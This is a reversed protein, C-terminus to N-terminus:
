RQVRARLALLIFAFAAPGILRVVFLLAIGAATWGESTGGFFTVSNRVAIAVCDWYDTLTLGPSATVKAPDAVFWSSRCRLAAGALLLVVVYTTLARSARVGYGCTLKYLALLTRDASMLPAALRRMEMEGYFFDAAASYAKAAELSARLQRYVAEVTRATVKPPGINPDRPVPPLAFSDSHRVSELEDAVVQRRRYIRWNAESETIRLRDLGVAHSMRCVGLDVGDGIVLPAELSASRLSVLRIRGKWSALSLSNRLVVRELSVDVDTRTRLASAASFIAGDFKVLPLQSLSLPPACSDNDIAKFSDLVVDSLIANDFVVCMGNRLSVSVSSNFTARDFWVNSRFDSGFTVYSSFKALDFRADAKFQTKNFSAKEDFQTYAFNANGPFVAEDFFASKQFRCRSFVVDGAFKTSLWCGDVFESGSFNIPALGTLSHQLELLLNHDIELDRLIGTMSAPNEQAEALFKKRMMPELHALCTEQNPIATAECIRDPDSKWPRGCNTV